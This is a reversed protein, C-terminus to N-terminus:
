EGTRLVRRYCRVFAGGTETMCKNPTALTRRVLEEDSTRYTKAAVPAREALYAPDGILSNM